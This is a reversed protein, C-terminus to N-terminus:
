RAALRRADAVQPGAEDIGFALRLRQLEASVRRPYYLAWGPLEGDRLLEFLRNPGTNYAMLALDARGPYSDLCRRLYRVGARVNAVPDHPDVEGLGLVEAERQLTGPLLQMLGLAGATSAAAPDYGSEVEIMALVLLPDIGVAEAEGAVARAVAAQVQQGAGPMRRVLHGEIRALFSQRAADEVSLVQVPGAPAELCPERRLRSPVAVAAVVV